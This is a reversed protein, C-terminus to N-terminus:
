MQLKLNEIIKNASINVSSDYNSIISCFPDDFNVKDIELSLKDQAKTMFKSHFAASVNLKVFRKIGKSLFIERSKEVELDLGSIVVQIPSNDNAIEIDIKNEKIISEVDSSVMGILAAMSTTNPTVASNMLEGRVKLLNAAESIKIAKSAALASYEGLSHGLMYDINLKELGFSEELTNFIGISAAFISIQTYNTTNLLESNDGFIIKKLNISTAEEIEEFIDKTERFNDYFDRAMGLFQSGQGPFVISTM